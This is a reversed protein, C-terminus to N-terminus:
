DLLDAKTLEFDSAIWRAELDKLKQGLSPGQFAPMLDAAKVPFQQEAGRTIAALDQESIPSSLSAARLLVASRALYGGLRYGLEAPKQDSGIAEKLREVRRAEAKSLRLLKSLDEAGLAVMRAAPDVPLSAESELHVMVAVTQSAAGPLIAALVGSAQMSALAQAPNTASLLKGMEAGVRERSLLSLGEINAACAALGEADIGADQDGYHAYFRFFRLIRLYDERIRQEADGIFRVRREVLEDLGTGLPDVVQGDSGVYLANMTFDRRAADDIMTDAFAVVARRGDTAIDKRFTTIEYPAGGSVVTVTGHDVGTPIAKLGAARALEIVREPHANTSVDLDTVPVDILANRVCGGVFWAEYGAGELLKCVAQSAPSKLWSATILTM